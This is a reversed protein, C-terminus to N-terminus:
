ASPKRGAMDLLVAPFLPELRSCIEKRKELALEMQAETFQLRAGEPMLRVRFDTFGMGALTSEAKEVRDLDEGRIRMGTPIRTALCAYAPKNWTFIGAEKSQRRVEEKTIGCERLPSRVHLEKLAQMGPRDGADDSANTGDLLLTHGDRRVNDWILSFLAKKCYYCRKPGNEAAGPVSLIDARIVKLPIDLEETLRKADALEFEPQFATKVYYAHVECGYRKAAWLLFASDTGGSFAAAARPATHFFQELTM